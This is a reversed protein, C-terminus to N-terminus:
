INDFRASNPLHEIGLDMLKLRLCALTKGHRGDIKGDILLNAYYGGYMSRGWDILRAM